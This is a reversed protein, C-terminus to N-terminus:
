FAPLIMPCRFQIPVTKGGPIYFTAATWYRAAVKEEKHNTDLTTCSSEHGDAVLYM